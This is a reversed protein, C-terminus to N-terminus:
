GTEEKNFGRRSEENIRKQTTEVCSMEVDSGVFKRGCALAAVATAGGGLFPDCVLQGRVTFREILQFMGSESQGWDHFRKDSAESIIWDEVHESENRGRTLWVVPKWNSKVHRGFQQSSSGPTHYGIVWQYSLGGFSTLVRLVAPFNAQGTMVLLHGGPVLSRLAFECLEGYCDLYELPYPPDTVIADVEGCELDAVASCRLDCDPRDVHRAASVDEREEDRYGRLLRKIDKRQIDGTIYPEIYSWQDADLASLTYLVTWSAPLHRGRSVNEPFRGSDAISILKHATKRNFPLQEVIGQWEGYGRNAERCEVLLRGTELIGEVTKQWALRIEGVWDRGIVEIDSV